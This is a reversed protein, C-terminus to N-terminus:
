KGSLPALLGELRDGTQERYHEVRFEVVETGGAETRDHLHGYRDELMNTGSWGLERAVTYMAVPRGRDCTQLRAGTYTHRLMHLRIYGKPFAARDGIHDLAKRVDRIMKEKTGRGSPFLLTGLGGTREREILYERLIEELQPWIPVSRKSGKTKLRRWDNPRFYIKGHRLSIDDVELGLIESRRAGTLLFTALLPYMWPFAGDEVPAKYTRASELLLAAEHAELYPAEQTDETPKSFMNAVPNSQVYEQSVARAYLNSLANLHKRVSSESYTGDRGNDQTRLHDVWRDLDKPRISALDLDAGFFDVASELYRQAQVLWADTVPETGKKRPEQAKRKLHYQAYAALGSEREIGLLHKKRKKGELEEVRDTILKAAIDSDTTALKDGEPVLKERKGGLDM